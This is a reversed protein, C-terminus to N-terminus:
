ETESSVRSVRGAQFAARAARRYPLGLMKRRTLTAPLAQLAAPNTMLKALEADTRSRLTDRGKKLVGGGLKQLLGVPPHGAFAAMVLDGMIGTADSAEALRRATQSGRLSRGVLESSGVEFELRRNWAEAAQANPMIAAIKERVQPSRLYKTMDGLKAPDNGMKSVISSVAGIRFAEQESSGLKALNATLEEAGLKNSLISKGDEIAQLYKSKGAWASLAKEYVPNKARVIDLVSDRTESITRATNKNGARIAAGISDDAVKKWADILVMLPAQAIDKIGYESQLNKRLTGSNLLSKGWGTSTEETWAKVIDADARANFNMAQDYLPKGQKEREAMTETVAEFASKKTGTLESLDDAIRGAQAEQRSNLFPQTITRGAGPTQAVREMLGRVNEGGVDALTAGPRDASLAQGAAAAAEPTTADRQLARTVDARAMTQPTVLNGAVAGVTAKTTGAAINIPDIARGVRGAARAAEGVAGPVRALATEGGSLVISIDALAGVPDTAITKKIAEASGYRDVFFKGVADAYKEADNGSMVGLKQLVGKGIAGISEATQIPHLIPQVIDSAFQGASSPINTVAELAAGGWSRQMDKSVGHARVQDAIQQVTTQQQEAPLKLFDDSV